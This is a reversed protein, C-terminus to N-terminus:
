SYSRRVSPASQSSFEGFFFNRVYVGGKTIILIVLLCVEWASHGTVVLKLLSLSGDSKGITRIHTRIYTYICPICLLITRNWFNVLFKNRVKCPCLTCRWCRCSGLNRMRKDCDKLTHARPWVICMWVTILNMGSETYCTCQLLWRPFQGWLGATLMLFKSLQRQQRHVNHGHLTLFLNRTLKKFWVM